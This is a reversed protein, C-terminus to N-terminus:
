SKRIRFFPLVHPTVFILFSITRTPFVGAIIMILHMKLGKEFGKLMNM